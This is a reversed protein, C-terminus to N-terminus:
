EGSRKKDEIVEEYLANMKNIIELGKTLIKNIRKDHAKELKEIRKDFERRERDIDTLLYKISHVLDTYKESKTKCM